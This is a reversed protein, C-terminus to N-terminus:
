LLKTSGPQCASVKGVRFDFGHFFQAWTATVTVGRAKLCRRDDVIGRHPEAFLEQIGARASHVLHDLGGAAAPLVDGLATPSRRSRRLGFQAQHIDCARAQVLKQQVVFVVQALPSERLPIGVALFGAGHPAHRLLKSFIPRILGIRSIQGIEFVLLAGCEVRPPEFAVVRSDARVCEDAQYVLRVEEEVALDGREFLAKHFPAAVGFLEGSCSEGVAFLLIPRIRRILGIKGWLARLAFRVHSKACGFASLIGPLL